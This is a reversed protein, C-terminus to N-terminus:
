NVAAAAAEPAQHAVEDYTGTEANYSYWLGSVASCYLGTNPDYYYGLSHSYYYGSVDDFVYDNGLGGGNNELGLEAAAAPEDDGFMDFADDDDDAM